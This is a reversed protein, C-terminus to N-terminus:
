KRGTETKRAQVFKAKSLSAGEAKLKIGDNRCSNGAATYRKDSVILYNSEHYITFTNEFLDVL